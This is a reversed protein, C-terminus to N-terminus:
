QGGALQAKLAALERLAAEAERQAAEKAKREAEAERQAAEKAKREAEKAKREAEAKRLAAEKAKREAEEATLWPERGAQDAYIRFSGGDERTFHVWGEVVESWAPGDGAVVRDFRGGALRRWIQIRHPGGEARPGSLDADLIWLESVGCEDYKTPASLYDKRPNTPSVIEVALRPAVHGRV